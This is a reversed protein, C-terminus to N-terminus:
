QVKRMVLESEVAVDPTDLIFPVVVMVVQSKTNDKKRYTFLEGLLPLQGLVPIRIIDNTKNEKFLGGVVFPEGNRVRVNTTVTRKTTIPVEEGGASGRAVGVVDGTEINLKITLMGDRGVMPTMKLKPGVEKSDWEVNGAEDRGSIYPYDQTLNIDAEQGDIVVVSPSALVRGNKKTEQAQIAMDFERWLGQMPTLLDTVNPNIGGDETDIPTFNRGLRNDDIYGGGGVGNMYKFWWHNYVANIAVQVDKTANDSYELIRAQLMVQKGPNDLRQIVTQVEALKEPSSTIYIIRLRTDVNIRDAPLRVMSTLLGQLAAPDAYAVHFARTEETGAARSLGENTGVVITDKGVMHYGIDYNRMLYAFAEKLPVNKLTMTVLAPPLSQDIIINKNIYMGLMRFVDRLETDRLDLTVPTTSSFPGTIDPTKVIPKVLAAEKSLKDGQEQSIFRLMYSDSPATGRMSRLQLPFETMLSVVTNSDRQEMKVDSLIVASDARIDMDASGLRVDEFLIETSNGTFILKPQPLIKGRIGVVLDSDGLQYIELASFSPLKKLDEKSLGQEKAFAATAALFLALLLVWTYLKKSLKM